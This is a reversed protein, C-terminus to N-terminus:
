SECLKMSMGFRPGRVGLGLGERNMILPRGKRDVVEVRLPPHTEEKVERIQEEMGFSVYALRGLLAVFVFGFAIACLALRRTGIDPNTATLTRRKGDRDDFTVRVTPDHRLGDNTM